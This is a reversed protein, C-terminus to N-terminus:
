QKDKLRRVFFSRLFLYYEIFKHNAVGWGLLYLIPIIQFIIILMSAIMVNNRDTRHMIYEIKYDLVCNEKNRRTKLLKTSGLQM